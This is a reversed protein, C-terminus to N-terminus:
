IPMVEDCPPQGELNQEPNSFNCDTNEKVESKTMQLNFNNEIDTEIKVKTGQLYSINSSDTKGRNKEYKEHYELLTIGHEITLHGSIPSSYHAVFQNCILCQYYPLDRVSNSYIKEYDKLGMSHTLRIHKIFQGHWLIESCVECKTRISEYWPDGATSVSSVIKPVWDFNNDTNDKAIEVDNFLDEDGRFKDFFEETNKM